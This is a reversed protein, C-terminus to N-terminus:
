LLASQLCQGWLDGKCSCFKCCTHQRVLSLWNQQQLLQNQQQLGVERKQWHLLLPKAVFIAEAAALVASKHTYICMKRRCFTAPALGSTHCGDGTIRKGSCHYTQRVNQLSLINCSCTEFQPLSRWNINAAAFRLNETSYSYVKRRCVTGPTVTLDAAIALLVDGVAFASKRGLVTAAALRSIHCCGGVVSEWERGM